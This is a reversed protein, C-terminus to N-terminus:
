DELEISQLLLDRGGEITIQPSACAPCQVILEDIPTRKGCARCCCEARPEAIEVEAAEVLTGPALMEFAFRLSDVSVGSLRGVVLELRTVRGDHGSQEVERRVQDILAEVISVEHV